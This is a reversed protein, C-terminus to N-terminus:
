LIECSLYTVCWTYSSNGQRGRGEREKEGRGEREGGGGEEEGRGDRGEGERGGGGVCTQHLKISLAHYDIAATTLPLPVNWLLLIESM